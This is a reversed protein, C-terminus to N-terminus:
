AIAKKRIKKAIDNQIFFNRLLLPFFSDFCSILYNNMANKVSVYIFDKPLLEHPSGTAQCTNHAEQTICLAEFM